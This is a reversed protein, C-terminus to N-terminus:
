IIDYTSRKCDTGLLFLTMVYCERRGGDYKLIDYDLYICLCLLTGRHIFNMDLVCDNCTFNDSIYVGKCIV